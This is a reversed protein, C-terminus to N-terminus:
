RVLRRGREAEGEMRAERRRWRRVLLLSRGRAVVGEGAIREAVLVLGAKLRVTQRLLLGQVTLGRIRRADRGDALRVIAVTVWAAARRRGGRLRAARHGLQARRVLLLRIQVLHDRSALIGAVVELRVASTRVVLSPLPVLVTYIVVVLSSSPAVVVVLVVAVVHVSSRAAVLVVVVLVVVVAAAVTAVVILADRVLAVLAAVSVVVVVVVLAVVVVVVVRAALHAATRALEHRVLALEVIRRQLGLEVELLAVLLEQVQDVLEVFQVDGRVALLAARLVAVLRPGLQALGGVLHVLVAVEVILGLREEVVDAALRDFTGLTVLLPEVPLLLALQVSLGETDLDVESLVVAREAASRAEREVSVRVM